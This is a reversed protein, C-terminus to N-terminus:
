HDIFQSYLVSLHSPLSGVNEWIDTIMKLMLPTSALAYLRRNKKLARYLQINGTRRYTYDQVNTDDFAHVEYQAVGLQNSYGYKRSTIVLHLAPYNDVLQKIQLLTSDYVQGNLENLGDLFLIANGNKIYDSLESSFFFKNLADSLTYDQRLDKLAVFIPLLQSSGEVFEHCLQVLEHILVTTKGSGPNGLIVLKDEDSIVSSITALSNSESDEEIDDTDEEDEEDTELDKEKSMKSLYISSIDEATTDIFANVDRNGFEKLLNEIYNTAESM